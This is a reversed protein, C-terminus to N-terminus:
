SPQFSPMGLGTPQVLGSSAGARRYADLAATEDGVQLLLGGLEFWMEAAKRDAGIATLTMIAKQFATRAAGTSRRVLQVRGLVVCAEAGLLPASDRAAEFCETAGRLADDNRGALYDIKALTLRVRTKDLVSADSSEMETMADRANNSAGELDPPDLRLQLSALAGKLRALNRADEGLEMIDIAKHALPLAAAVAGQRAQMLSANWYASARANPSDMEEAKEVTEQCLRLAHHVDGREYAAAAVTLALQIAEDTGALGRPEIEALAAQGVEVARGLDGSERHCRSLSILARLWSPGRDATAVIRELESIAEDYRGVAELAAARLRRGREVVAEVHSLADDGLFTDIQTLASAADGSKLSLEAYDLALEAEALQDRNVGMVLAEVTTGLTDALHQLLGADPRRNGLEIRSIYAASVRKAAAQAQTMGAALRANRIRQGLVVPDAKRGLRAIEPDVRRM